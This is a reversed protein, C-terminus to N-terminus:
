TAYPEAFDYSVEGLKKLIDVLVAAEQRQANFITFPTLANPEVPLRPHYNPGRIRIVQQNYGVVIAPSGESLKWRDGTLASKAGNGHYARVGCGEFDVYYQSIEAGFSGPEYENIENVLVDVYRETPPKGSPGRRSIYVRLQGSGGQLPLSHFSATQQYGLGVALSHIESIQTRLLLKEMEARAYWKPDETDSFEPMTPPETLINTEWFMFDNLNQEYTSM